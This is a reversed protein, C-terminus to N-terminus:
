RRELLQNMQSIVETVMRPNLVGRWVRVIIGDKDIVMTQPTINIYYLEYIEPDSPFLLPFGVPDGFFLSDPSFEYSKKLAWLRGPFKEALENWGDRSFYCVDCEDSYWGLILPAPTYDNFLNLLSGRSTYAELPPAKDGERLSPYDGPSLPRGGSAAFQKKLQYYQFSVLSLLIALLMTLGPWLYAMFVSKHNSKL